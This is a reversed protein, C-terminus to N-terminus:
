KVAMQSFVRLKELNFYIVARNYFPSIIFRIFYKKKMSLGLNSGTFDSDLVKRKLSTRRAPNPSSSTPEPLPPPIPPPHPAEILTTTIMSESPVDSLQETSAWEPRVGM